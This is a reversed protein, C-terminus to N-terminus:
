IEGVITFFIFRVSAVSVAVLPAVALAADPTDLFPEDSTEAEAGAGGAGSAEV